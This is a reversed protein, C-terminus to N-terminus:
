QERSAGEALAALWEDPDRHRLDDVVGIAWASDYPEPEPRGAWRALRDDPAPEWGGTVYDDAGFELPQGDPHLERSSEEAARGRVRDAVPETEPHAALAMDAPHMDPLTVAAAVPAGSELALARDDVYAEQAALEADDGDREAQRYGAAFGLAYAIWGILPYGVGAAVILVAWWERQTM